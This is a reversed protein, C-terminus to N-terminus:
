AIDEQTQRLFAEVMDAIHHLGTPEDGPEIIETTLPAIHVTRISWLAQQVDKLEIEIHNYM